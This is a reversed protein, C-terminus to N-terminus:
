LSMALSKGGARRLDLTCLRSIVIGYPGLPESSAHNSCAGSPLNLINFRRYTIRLQLMVIMPLRPDVPVSTSFEIRATSMHRKGRGGSAIDACSKRRPVLLRAFFRFVSLMSLIAGTAESQQHFNLGSASATGVDCCAIHFMQFAARTAM